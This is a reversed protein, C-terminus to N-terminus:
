ANLTLSFTYEKNGSMYFQNIAERLDAATGKFEDGNLHSIVDGKQIGQKAAYRRAKKVLVRNKYKKVNSNVFDDSDSDDDDEDDSDFLDSGCVSNSHSTSYLSDIDSETGGLSAGGTRSTNQEAETLHVRSYADAVTGDWGDDVFKIIKNHKAFIDFDAKMIVCRPMRDPLPYMRDHREKREKEEQEEKTLMMALARKEKEEDNKGIGFRKKAPSMPLNAIIQGKRVAREMESLIQAAQALKNAQGSTMLETVYEKEADTMAEQLGFLLSTDITSESSSAATPGTGGKTPVNGAVYQDIRLQAEQIEEASIAHKQRLEAGNLESDSIGRL